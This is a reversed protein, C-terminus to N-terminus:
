RPRRKNPLGASDRIHGSSGDDRSTRGYKVEKKLNCFVVGDLFGLKSCFIKNDMTFATLNRCGECVKFGTPLKIKPM